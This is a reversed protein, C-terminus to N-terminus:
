SRKKNKKKHYDRLSLCLCLCISFCSGHVTLGVHSEIGPWWSRSMPWLCTGFGQVVWPDGIKLKELVGWLTKWLPQVQECAWWSHLPAEEDRYGWCCRNNRRNNIKAMRIATLHCRITTKMQMERIIPSASHRETDPPWRSTKDSVFDMWTKQGDATPYNTNLISLNINAKRIKCVLQKNSTNNVFIEKWKTHQRKANTTEKVKCFSKFKVFDWYYKQKQKGWRLPMDLFFIWHGIDFVNNGIKEEKYPKLGWM